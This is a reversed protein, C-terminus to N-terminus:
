KDEEEYWAPLVAIRCDGLGIEIYDDEVPQGDLKDIVERVSPINQYLTSAAPDALFLRKSFYKRKPM